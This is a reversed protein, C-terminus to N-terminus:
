HPINHTIARERYEHLQRKEFSWIVKAYKCSLSTYADCFCMKYGILSLVRDGKGEGGERRM